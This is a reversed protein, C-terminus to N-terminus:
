TAREVDARSRTATGRTRPTRRSTPSASSDWTAKNKIKAVFKEMDLSYYLPTTGHVATAIGNAELAEAYRRFTALVIPSTFPQRVAGVFVNARAGRVLGAAPEGSLLAFDFKDLDHVATDRSGTRTVHVRIHHRMLIEQVQPDEFFDAKSGMKGSLELTPEFPVVVNGSVLLVVLLAIAAVAAPGFSRLFRRRLFFASPPPQITLHPEELTPSETTM